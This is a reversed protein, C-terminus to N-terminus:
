TANLGIKYKIKHHCVAGGCNWDVSLVASASLDDIACFKSLLAMKGHSSVLDCPTMYGFIATKLRHGTLFTNTVFTNLFFFLHCLPLSM